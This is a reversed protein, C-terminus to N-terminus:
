NVTSFVIIYALLAALHTLTLWVFVNRHSAPQMSGKMICSVSLLLGGGHLIVVTFMTGWARITATDFTETLVANFILMLSFLVLGM